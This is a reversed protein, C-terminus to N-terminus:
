ERNDSFFFFATSSGGLTLAPFRVLMVPIPRVKLEYKGCLILVIKHRVNQKKSKDAAEHDEFAREM